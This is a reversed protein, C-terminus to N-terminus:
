FLVQYRYLIQLHYVPLRGTFLILIYSINFFPIISQYNEIKKSM